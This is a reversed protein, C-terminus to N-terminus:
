GLSAKSRDHRPGGNNKASTYKHSNALADLWCTSSNLHVFHKLTLWHSVRPWKQTVRFSWWSLHSAKTILVIKRGWKSIVWKWMLLEAGPRPKLTLTKSLQLHGITSFFIKGFFTIVYHETYCFCVKLCNILNQVNQLLIAHRSIPQTVLPSEGKKGGAKKRAPRSPDRFASGTNLAEMLGDLVGEQDDDVLSFLKYSM